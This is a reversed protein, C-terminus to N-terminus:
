GVERSGPDLDIERSLEIARGADPTFSLNVSARVSGASGARVAARGRRDFRLVFRRQGAGLRRRFPVVKGGWAELRGAARLKLRLLVGSATPTVQEISIALSSAAVSSREAAACTSASGAAAPESAVNGEGARPGSAAFLPKAAAAGFALVSASSGNGNGVYLGGSATTALGSPVADILPNSLQGLYDGAPDFEEVVAAPAEFGPQIDEAVLLAGSTQDLALAADALTLFGGRPDGSGDIRSLLTGTPGYVEIEGTAADAVYVDGASAAFDSVAVGYTDSGSELEIRRLPAGTSDYVEVAAREDVYVDSSAPDVVVGTANATDIATPTGYSTGPSPPYFSPAYREVAEHYVDVYLDGTLGVALGCPGNTRPLAIQTLYRNGSSYVDVVHHYYDAVYIDGVSDVALGCVGEFSKAPSERGDFSESESLARAAIAQGPALILVVVASLLPVATRIAKM